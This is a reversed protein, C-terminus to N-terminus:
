RLFRVSVIGVVLLVKGEGRGRILEVGGEFM